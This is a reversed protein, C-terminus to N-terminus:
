YVLVELRCRWGDSSLLLCSFSSSSLFLSFFHLRCAARTLATLAIEIATTAHPAEDDESLTIVCENRGAKRGKAPGYLRPTQDNVAQNRSRPGLSRQEM